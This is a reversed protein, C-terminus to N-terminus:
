DKISENPELFSNLNVKSHEFAPQKGLDMGDVGKLDKILQKSTDLDGNPVIPQEREM